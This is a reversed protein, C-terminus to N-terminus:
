EPVTPSHESPLRHQAGTPTARGMGMVNGDWGQGPSCAGTGARVGQPGQKLGEGLEAGLSRPIFVDM